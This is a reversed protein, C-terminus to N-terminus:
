SRITLDISEIAIPTIKKNMFVIDDVINSFSTVGDKIQWNMYVDYDHPRSDGTSIISGGMSVLERIWPIVYSLVGSLRATLKQSEKEYTLIWTGVMIWRNIGCILDVIAQEIEIHKQERVLRVKEIRRILRDFETKLTKSEFSLAHCKTLARISLPLDDANPMKAGDVLIPIIDLGLNLATEIEIRLLDHENYLRRKGSPDTITIWQSGIFLLFFDSMQLKTAIEDTFKQGIEITEVDFFIANDGYKKLLHKYTKTAADATDARRYNIFIGAM